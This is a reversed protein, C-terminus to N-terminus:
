NEQGLCYHMALNCSVDSLIQLVSILQINAFVQKTYETMNYPKVM